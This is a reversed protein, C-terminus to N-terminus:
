ATREGFLASGIRVLTAGEEIATEFDGSMGMSLIDFRPFAGMAAIEDRLTRLTSFARRTAEEDAALPAITMLGRPVPVIRSRQQQEALLDCARRLSDLDAFGTKSEEGANLELLIEPPSSVAPDKGPEPAAVALREIMARLLDISDISQIRSFLRLAKNLKNTQLHGIMDLRADRHTELFSPFKAEAEQVRSEGFRRIGAEYAAVVAEVPHFKTVAMIEISGPERGSRRAAAVVRDRVEGLRAAVGEMATSEMAM